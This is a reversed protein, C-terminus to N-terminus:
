IKRLCHSVKKLFPTHTLTNKNTSKKRFIGFIESEVFGNQKLVDTVCGYMDFNGLVLMSSKDLQKYLKQALLKRDKSSLYPWFNRCLLVTNKPPINDVDDRIDTCSFIVSDKVANKAKAYYYRWDAGIIDFYKNLKNNSHLCIGSIDESTLSYVGKKALSINEFNLDKAIIPFFKESKNQFREKLLIALSYPEEGNSCAHCIINVKNAYKYENDLYNVFDEWNLDSRFFETTTYYPYDHDEVRKSYSRFTQSHTSYQIPLINM